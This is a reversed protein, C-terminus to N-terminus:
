IRIMLDLCYVYFYKLYWVNGEGCKFHVNDEIHLSLFVVVSLFFYKGTCHSLDLDVM